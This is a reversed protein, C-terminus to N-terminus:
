LIDETKMDMLIIRILVVAEEMIAAEPNEILDALL